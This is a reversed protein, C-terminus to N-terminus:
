WHQAPVQWVGGVVTGAPPSQEVVDLGDTQAAPVRQTTSGEPLPVQRAGTPAPPVHELEVM